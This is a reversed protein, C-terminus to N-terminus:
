SIRIVSCNNTMATAKKKILRKINFEKVLQKPFYTPGAKHLTM